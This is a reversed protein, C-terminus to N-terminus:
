RHVMLDAKKGLLGQNSSYTRAFNRLFELTAESPQAYVRRVRKQLHYIPTSDQNIPM